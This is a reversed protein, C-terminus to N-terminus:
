SSKPMLHQYPQMGKGNSAHGPQRYPMIWGKEPRLGPRGDHRWGQLYKNTFKLLRKREQVPVGLEKLQRGDLKLIGKLDLGELRNEFKLLDLKRQGAKQKKKAVGQIGRSATRLFERVQAGAADDVADCLRRVFPVVAPRPLPARASPSVLPALGRRLAALFM